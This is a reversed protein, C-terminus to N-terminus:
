YDNKRFKGFLTNKGKKMYFTNEFELYSRNSSILAEM